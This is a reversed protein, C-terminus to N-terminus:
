REEVQALKTGPYYAQLITGYDQGAQARALAGMQCMGIGHGFGSGHAVIRNGEMGIDFRASELIRGAGTGPRLAFRTKDGRLEIRGRDTSMELVNIRGDAYRDRVRFGTIKQFPFAAGANASSLNKRVISALAAPDWSQTWDMYRSARCWARGQDDTDPASVLYPIRPGGWMEHRGATIGGCTSHYYCHALSDNYLLVTGATERVARDSAAHEAAAGGYVQDQVSAYMDFDEDSRALMRQFAYTRATVAQAKLAELRTEDHRGMELPVVGRLYDEVPLVNVCIFGAGRAHFELTGRYTKGNVELPVDPDLSALRLAVANGGSVPDGRVPTVSLRGNRREVRMAGTLSPARQAQGGIKKWQVDAGARANILLSRTQDQLLIRVHARISSPLAFSGTPGPVAALAPDPAPPSSPLYLSEEAAYPFRLPNPEWVDPYPPRSLPGGGAFNVFAGPSLPINEQPLVPSAILLLLAFGKLPRGRRRPPSPPPKPM